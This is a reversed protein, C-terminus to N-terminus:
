KILCRSMENMLWTTYEEDGMEWLADPSSSLIGSDEEADNECLIEHGDLSTTTGSSTNLM